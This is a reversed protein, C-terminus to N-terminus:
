EVTVSVVRPIMLFASKEQSSITKDFVIKKGERRWDTVGFKSLLEGLEKEARQVQEETASAHIIITTAM